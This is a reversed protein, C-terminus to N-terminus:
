AAREGTYVDFSPLDTADAVARAFAHPEFTRERGISATTVAIVRIPRECRLRLAELTRSVARASMLVQTPDRVVIQRQEGSAVFQAALSVTFAGTVHLADEAPDYVPIRLRAVLGQAAHVAEQMTHWSSAGAAVVVAADMGALAAIRDIAGDVLAMDAYDLLMAVADRVGSATPAGVLEYFAGDRISAIALDGAATQTRSLALIESAPSRPLVDRATAVIAPPRLFLRPKPIADAIDVSEGDRGTSALGVRVGSDHAAEYVARLTVTKGVNKGTGVVFLTRAGAARALDLITQGVRM